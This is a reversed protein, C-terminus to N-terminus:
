IHILSLKDAAPKYNVQQEKPLDLVKDWSISMCSDGKTTKVPKFKLAKFLWRVM